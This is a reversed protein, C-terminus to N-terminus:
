SGSASVPLANLKSVAYYVAHALADKWHQGQSGSIYKMGAWAYGVKKLSPQSEWVIPQHIRLRLLTRMAGIVQEAPVTQYSLRGTRAHTDFTKWGEYVIIDAADIKDRIDILQMDKTTGFLLPTITRRAEDNVEITAWGTTKGPDIGLIIM